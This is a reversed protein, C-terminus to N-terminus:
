FKKFNLLLNPIENTKTNICFIYYKSQTNDIMLSFDQIEEISNLKEIMGEFPTLSGFDASILISKNTNTQTVKYRSPKTDTWGIFSFKLGITNNLRKSNDM